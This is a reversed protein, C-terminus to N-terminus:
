AQIESPSKSDVSGKSPLNSNGARLGFVKLLRRMQNRRQFAIVEPGIPREVRCAMSWFYGFFLALGGLVYPRRGMQYITRFVQWVPHYGLRYGTQGLKFNAAIKQRHNASGMPRHHECVKDTFTQTHWGKMRATLVAIADIGGGQVPVYGGIEDFCGRRFMQAAGSVHDKSSFRYDYTQGEESFPTGGVGLGPDEAFKQMLFEYYDKGFSLDADVNGVIDFELQKARSYATNFCKAKGGFDRTKREPMRYLEIWGHQSAYRSVIEDTRDTSGDSVIIWRVPRKTQNVVSQITLEIFAEENRAATILLYKLNLAKV